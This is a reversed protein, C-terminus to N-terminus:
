EPTMSVYQLALGPFGTLSDYFCSLKIVGRTVQCNCGSLVWVGQWYDQAKPGMRRREREQAESGGTPSFLPLFVLPFFFFLDLMKIDMQKPM